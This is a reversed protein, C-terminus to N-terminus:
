RFLFKLFLEASLVLVSHRSNCFTKRRRLNRRKTSSMNYVNNYIYCTCKFVTRTWYSDLCYSTGTIFPQLDKKLSYWKRGKMHTSRNVCESLMMYLLSACHRVIVVCRVEYLSNWTCILLAHKRCNHITDAINKNSSGVVSHIPRESFLWRTYM